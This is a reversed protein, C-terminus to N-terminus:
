AGHKLGLPSQHLTLWFEAITKAARAFEAFAVPKRVYGNAGLEHSRLIDEHEKSSTLVVVPLLRTREHARLQRLVELGEIKPLNLDLLVLSPLPAEVNASDFFYALAEAGDRAVVFESAIGSRQFALLTLKEDSANDEILLVLQTM